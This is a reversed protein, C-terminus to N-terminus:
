GGVEKVVLNHCGSRLLPIHNHLDVRRLYNGSYKLLVIIVIIINEGKLLLNCM